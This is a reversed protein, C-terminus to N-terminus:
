LGSYKKNIFVLLEKTVDISEDAYLVNQKNNSGLVIKYNNEKAFQESYSNIRSWIKKSEELAFEENFRDFEDRKAIFEKTMIDKLEQSVDERQLELYLSDLIRKKTNFEKEGMKKMERTMRFEDFLLNNNVYVIDRNQKLNSFILFVVLGITLLLNVFLFILLKNKQVKFTNFKQLFLKKKVFM